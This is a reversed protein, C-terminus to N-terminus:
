LAKKGKRWRERTSEVDITSDEAPPADGGPTPELSAPAPPAGPRPVLWRAPDLRRVLRRLEWAPEPLDGPREAAQELPISLARLVWPLRLGLFGGVEPTLVVSLLAEVTGEPPSEGPAAPPQRLAPGSETLGHRECFRRLPERRPDWSESGGPPTVLVGPLRRLGHAIAAILGAYIWRPAERHHISPEPSVLFGPGSLEKATRSAVELLQNLLGFPGARSPLESVPLDYVFLAVRALVRDVLDDKEERSMSALSDRIGQVFNRREASGRLLELGQALPMRADGFGESSSDAAEEGWRSLFKGLTKLM